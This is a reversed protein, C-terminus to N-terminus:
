INNKYNDDVNDNSEPHDLLDTIGHNHDVLQNQQLVCTYEAHWYVYDSGSSVVSQHLEVVLQLESHAATEAVDVIDVEAWVRGGDEDLCEGTSERRVVLDSGSVAPRDSYETVSASGPRGLPRWCLLGVQLRSFSIILSISAPWSLHTSSSWCRCCKLNLWRSVHRRTLRVDGSSRLM